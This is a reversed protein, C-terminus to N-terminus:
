VTLSIPSTPEGALIGKVTMSAQTQTQV